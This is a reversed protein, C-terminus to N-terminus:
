EGNSSHVNEPEIIGYNDDSRRYIVKLQRDEENRFVLFHDGSLEMKMVAEDYSLLKLPKTEQSVISHPQYKEVLRRSTEDEIDGNIDRIEGEAAPQLINVRMDVTSLSPKGLHTQLKSKYRLLQRQLKDVAKDISAYMDESSASSKITVQNVKIVIEVRHVLKQIDMAVNIDIIRDTFRELKALKELCYNKMADTVLIHRGIISINSAENAFEAAKDKRNM